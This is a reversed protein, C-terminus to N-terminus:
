LKRKTDSILFREPWEHTRKVILQKGRHLEDFTGDFIKCFAAIADAPREASPWDLKFRLDDWIAIGGVKLLRWAMITDTLVDDRRHSADIYIVDFQAGNEALNDLGVASRMRMKNIRSAYISTNKDFREELAAISKEFKEGHNPSGRFTDICTIHCKPIYELFFIASRGEWSGIELINAQIHQLPALTNILADVKHSFWDNTFDKGSFWNALLPHETM